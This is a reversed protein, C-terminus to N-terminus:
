RRIASLVLLGVAAFQCRFKFPPNGAILERLQGVFGWLRWQRIKEVGATAPHVL